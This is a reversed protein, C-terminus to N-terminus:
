PLLASPKPLTVTVLDVVYSLETDPTADSSPRVEIWLRKGDLGDLTPKFIIVPNMRLHADTDVKLGTIPVEDGLAYSDDMLHAVVSVQDPVCHVHAPNPMVSWKSDKAVMQSPFYGQGPFCIMDWDGGAGSNDDVNLLTHPPVFGVGITHMTQNLLFRRHAVQQDPDNLWNGLSRVFGDKGGNSWYLCANTGDVAATFFGSDMGPPQQPTHSFGQIAALAAAHQALDSAHADVSMGDWSAGCLMRIAQLAHLAQAQAADSVQGAAFPATTSAPVSLVDGDVPALLQTLEQTLRTLSRPYTVARELVGSKAYVQIPSALDGKAYSVKLRLHGDVNTICTGNRLGAAFKEKSLVKGDEEWTTWDGQKQDNRYSGIEHRKGDSYFSAYSGTRLGKADTSYRDKLTGDPYKEVVDEAELATGLLAGLCCSIAYRALIRPM